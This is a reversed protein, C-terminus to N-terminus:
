RLYEPFLKVLAFFVGNEENSKSVFDAVEKLRPVANEVAIKMGAVDFMFIDNENDGFVITSSLDFNMHKALLELAIGKNTGEPIIDLFIPFSKFVNAKGKTIEQLAPAIEDLTHAEAVGLLKIPERLKKLDEVITYPVDAHKSYLRIEDDDKESYLVDDVYSHVHINRQRFFDIVMHAVDLPITKEYIFGETPVYVVAGNYSIIPFVNGQDGFVRDLMKKASILMRGTAFVVKDGKTLINLVVDRTELPFENRSNLITGDLDFVFVRQTSMYKRWRIFDKRSEM